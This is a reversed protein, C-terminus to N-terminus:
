GGAQVFSAHLQEHASCLAGTTFDLKRNTFELRRSLSSTSGAARKFHLVEDEQMTICITSHPLPHMVVVENM